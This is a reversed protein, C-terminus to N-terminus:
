RGLWEEIDKLRRNPLSVSQDELPGSDERVVVIAALAGCAALWTLALLSVGVRHSARPPQRTATAVSSSSRPEANGAVVAFAVAVAVIALIIRCAGV